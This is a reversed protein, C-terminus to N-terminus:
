RGGIHPWAMRLVALMVLLVALGVIWGGVGSIAVAACALLAIRVTWAHGSWRTWHKM